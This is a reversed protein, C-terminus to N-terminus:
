RQRSKSFIISKVHIIDFNLHFLACKFTTGKVYHQMETKNQEKLHSLHEEM